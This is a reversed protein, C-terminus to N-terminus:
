MLQLVDTILTMELTINKKSEEFVKEKTWKIHNGGLGGVGKGTKGKNLLEYGNSKYLEIWNHEKEQADESQLINEELIIYKPIELNSKLHYRYVSSTRDSFATELNHHQKDRRIIDTTLGIYVVNNGFDYCYITYSKYSNYDCVVYNFTKAIENLWNNKRAVAYASADGRAFLTRTRYKKAVEFVKEKTWKKKM